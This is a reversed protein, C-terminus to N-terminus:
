FIMVAAARRSKGPRWGVHLAADKVWRGSRWSKYIQSHTQDAADNALPPREGTLDVRTSSEGFAPRSAEEARPLAPGIRLCPAASLKDTRITAIPKM